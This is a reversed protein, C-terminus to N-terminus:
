SCVIFSNKEANPEECSFIVTWTDPCYLNNLSNKMTPQSTLKGGEVTPDTEISSIFNKDTVVVAAAKNCNTDCSFSWPSTSKDLKCNSISLKGTATATGTGTTTLEGCIAPYGARRWWYDAGIVPPDGIGYQADTGLAKKVTYGEPLKKETWTRPDKKCNGPPVATCITDKTTEESFGAVNMYYDLMIDKCTAADLTYSGCGCEPDIHFCYLGDECYPIKNIIGFHGLEGGKFNGDISVEVRKQCFTVAASLDSCGNASYANCLNECANREKQYNYSAKIDDINPLTDQKVIGTFLKIVVLAVVILIFMMFVMELANVGKKMAM